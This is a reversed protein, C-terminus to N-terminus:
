RNFSALPSVQRRDINIVGAMASDAADNIYGLLFKRRDPTAVLQYRFGCPSIISPRSAYMAVWFVNAVIFGISSCHFEDDLM